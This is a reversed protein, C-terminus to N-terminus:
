VTLVADRVIETGLHSYVSYIYVSGAPQLEANPWVLPSGLLNGNIDLPIGSAFGAAIQQSDPTVVDTNLELLVVGNSVPNGDADQFNTLPFAVRAM